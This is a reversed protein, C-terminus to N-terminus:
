LYDEASLKDSSLLALNEQPWLSGGSPGSAGWIRDFGGNLEFLCKFMATYDAHFGKQIGM